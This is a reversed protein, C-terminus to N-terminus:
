LERLASGGQFIKIIENTAFPWDGGSDQPQQRNLLESWGAFPKLRPTSIIEISELSYPKSGMGKKSDNGFVGGHFEGDLKEMLSVLCWGVNDLYDM